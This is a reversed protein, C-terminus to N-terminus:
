PQAQLRTWLRSAEAGVAPLGREVEARLAAPDRSAELLSRVDWADKPGGAHLKLLILDAARAVPVQVDGVASVIAAALVERQWAHRGVVVDVTEAGDTLRVTGALPDDFDGRLVRVRNGRAEIPTWFESRLVAPDVSLLDVDATSRSVGHVAMAAAGILAHPTGEHRLVDVVDRLLTM